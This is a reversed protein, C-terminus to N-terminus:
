FMGTRAIWGGGWARGARADSVPLDSRVRAPPRQASPLVPQSQTHEHKRSMAPGPKTWPDGLPQPVAVALATNARLQGKTALAPQSANPKMRQVVSTAPLAPWRPLAASSAAPESDGDPFAVEEMSQRAPRKVSVASGAPWNARAPGAGARTPSTKAVIVRPEPSSTISGRAQPKVPVHTVPVRARVAPPSREAGFPADGFVTGAFLMRLTRPSLEGTARRPEPSQEASSPQPSPSSGLPSPPPSPAALTAARQGASALRLAGLRRKAAENVPIASAGDFATLQLPVSGRRAAVAAAAGAPAPVTPQSTPIVRTAVYNSPKQRRPVAKFVSLTGELPPDGGDERGASPAPREDTRVAAVGVPGVVVRRVPSLERASAQRPVVLPAPESPSTARGEVYPLVGAQDDYGFGVATSAAKRASAAAPPAGSSPRSAAKAAAAALPLSARANAGSAIKAKWESYSRDGAQMSARQSAAGRADQGTSQAAKDVRERSLSRFVGRAERVLDVDRKALVSSLAATVRTTDRRDDREDGVPASTGATLTVTAAASDAARAADWVRFSESGDRPTASAPSAPEPTVMERPSTAGLDGHPTLPTAPDDVADLSQKWTQYDAVRGASVAAQGASLPPVGQPKAFDSPSAAEERPAEWDRDPLRDELPTLPTAPTLPEDGTRVSDEWGRAESPDESPPAPSASRDSHAFDADLAPAELLKNVATTIRDARGGDLEDDVLPTAASEPRESGTAADDASGDAFRRRPPETDQPTPSTAEEDGSDEAGDRAAAASSREALEMTLLANSARKSGMLTGRTSRKRMIVYEGVRVAEVDSGTSYTSTRRDPLSPGSSQSERAAEQVAELEHQALAANLEREEEGSSAPRQQRLKQLQEETQKVTGTARRARHHKPPPALADLVDPRIYKNPPVQVDPLGRAGSTPSM